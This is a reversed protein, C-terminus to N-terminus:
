YMEEEERVVANTRWRGAAGTWDGDTSPRPKFSERRVKGSNKSSHLSSSTSRTSSGLRSPVAQRQTSPVRGHGLTCQQTGHKSGPVPRPLSSVPTKSRTTTRPNSSLTGKSTSRTVTMPPAAVPDGLRQRKNPVSHTMSSPAPRVAPTVVGKGSVSSTPVYNHHNPNESFPTTARQKPQASGARGKKGGQNEKDVVEPLLDSLTQLISEGHVLFVRDHEAEWKPIAIVLEQELRPKEKTVRKRMKEERLLRGPDRPGRGLLRSQDSAAAALEKEDELIDFYKRISVLLSGKQKREEKLRVIEDEHLALLEETHEDDAFPAFDEREEEGVMLDDWLKVIENRANEIFTGMREQRLELMRELEEEYARVTDETSGRHEEVFEDMAGEPVGLRKWLAELQDYMAQIHTERRRKVGELETKIGEAWALLAPNPDVNELGVHTGEISEGEREAEELRAVFRAFVAKHDSESPIAPLDHTFLSQAQPKTRGAPTPTSSIFPDSNMSTYNSCSSSPRSVASPIGLYSSSPFENLTPPVLGLETHLWDLHVFLASLQTLRKNIEAKGRVLEKELKSFREVTVDRFPNSDGQSLGPAPVTDTIDRPYFDCGLTHSITNIRNTLTQLQELKSHYLQRLREQHETLADYRKPLIHEKRVEGIGSGTVKIHGGLAKSYRGCDDEVASCKQMWEDVQKRRLDIQREVCATLEQELASLEDALSTHPLGLQSHLAPLLQTQQQLHSHLSNLLSTLSVPATSEM